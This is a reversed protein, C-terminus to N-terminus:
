KIEKETLYKKLYKWATPPCKMETLKLIIGTITSTNPSQTGLKKCLRPTIEKSIGYDILYINNGKMM